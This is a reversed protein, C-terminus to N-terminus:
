HPAPAVMAETRSSVAPTTPKVAPATAASAKANGVTAATTPTTAAGATGATAADAAAGANAKGEVGEVIKVFLRESVGLLLALGLALESYPDAWSVSAFLDGLVKYRVALALLLVGSWAALAGVMPSLFLTTWSFGYDTPLQQRALVRSLRSMLGGLAGLLFFPAHGFTASLALVLLLSSGILWATKKHWSAISAFETDSADYLQNRAESLLAARRESPPLPASALAVEIRARLAEAPALFQKRFAAFRVRWTEQLVSEETMGPDVSLSSRMLAAQPLILLSAHELLMRYEAPMAKARAEEIHASLSDHPALAMVIRAALSAMQAGKVTSAADLAAAVDVTVDGAAEKVFAMIERLLAAPGDSVDLLTRALEAHIQDALALAEATASQRLQVEADDLAVRVDEASLLAAMQEKAEHVLQWGVHEQGRSWFIVELLWTPRNALHLCARARDLLACVQANCAQSELGTSTLSAVRAAVADIEARLLERTPLAVMNWRAAIVGFGYLLVLFFVPVVAWWGKCPFLDRAQCLDIGEGALEAIVRTPGGQASSVVIASSTQGAKTPAFAVSLACSGKAAIECKTPAVTFDGSANAEFTVSASAAPDAPLTVSKVASKSGLEQKGFELKVTGNRLGALGTETATATGKGDPASTGTAVVVSDAGSAAAVARAPSSAQPAAAEPHLFVMLALPVVVRNRLRAWSVTSADCRSVPIYVM